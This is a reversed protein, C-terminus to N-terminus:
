GQSRRGAVGRPTMPLSNFSILLIHTYVTYNSCTYMCIYIYTPTYIYIYTHTNQTYIYISICMYLDQSCQQVYISCIVHGSDRQIRCVLDTPAWLCACRCQQCGFRRSHRLNPSDPPTHSHQGVQGQQQWRPPEIAQGLATNRAMLHELLGHCRFAGRSPSWSSGSIWSVRLDTLAQRRLAM